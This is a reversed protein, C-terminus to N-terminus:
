IPLFPGLLRVASRRETIFTAAFDAGLLKVTRFNSRTRWRVSL